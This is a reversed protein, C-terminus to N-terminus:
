NQNSFDLVPQWAKASYTPGYRLNIDMAPPDIIKGPNLIGAPDAAQKLKRFADGIQPGFVKDLWESRALGDGHEGSPSGGLRIILSIAETAIERLMTVGQVTKLNILPRIHLCGASAHAYFDGETKYAHLIRELEQVFEGLRDIPVSVDEVFPIPKTDGPKSMLLGLGVKRVNWIQEQLEPDDALLSPSSTQQILNRGMKRVQNPSEGCFEVALLNPLSNDSLLLQEIFAVQHAYAPITRALRMMNAPIIEVASPQIELVSSVAECASIMDPFAILVLCTARPKPV